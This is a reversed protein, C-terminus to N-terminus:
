STSSPRQILSNSRGPSGGPGRLMAWAQPGDGPLTVADLVDFGSGRYLATNSTELYSPMDLSDATALAPALLRTALGRRRHDPTVGMTAITYHPIGPRLHVTAADAQEAVGLREGLLQEEEAAMGAWVESPVSPPLGVVAGVVTRGPSPCRAVWTDGYPIGVREVTLVFLGLLRQRRSEAPVIWDTFEYGLFSDALAQAIHGGDVPAAREILHADGTETCTCTSRGSTLTGDDPQDQGPPM